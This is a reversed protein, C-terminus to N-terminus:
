YLFHSCVAFVNGGLVAGGDADVFAALVGGEDSLVKVYRQEIM